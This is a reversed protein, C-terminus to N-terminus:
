EKATQMSIAANLHGKTVKVLWFELRPQYPQDNKRKRCM